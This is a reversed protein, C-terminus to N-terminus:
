QQRFTDALLISREAFHVSRADFWIVAQDLTLPVISDPLDPRTSSHCVLFCTGDAGRCLWTSRDQEGQPEVDWALVQASGSPFRLDIMTLVRNSWQM